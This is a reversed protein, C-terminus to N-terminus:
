IVDALLAFLIQLKRKYLSRNVKSEFDCLLGFFKASVFFGTGTRADLLTLYTDLHDLM